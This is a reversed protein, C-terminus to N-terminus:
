MKVTMLERWGDNFKVEGNKKLEMIHFMLLLDFYFRIKESVVYFPLPDPPFHSKINSVLM